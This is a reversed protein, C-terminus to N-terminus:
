EQIQIRLVRTQGSPDVFEIDLQRGSSQQQEDAPLDGTKTLRVQPMRNKSFVEATQGQRVLVKGADNKVEIVGETVVYMTHGTQGSQFVWFKTGKISAVSTPTTVKLEGKQKFISAFFAGIEVFINKQIGKKDKKGEIVCSSKEKIRLLSKDDLFKLACFAGPGTEIKDGDRLLQGKQLKESKLSNAATIWVDGRFKLVVAIYEDAMLAASFLLLMLLGLRFYTPRM